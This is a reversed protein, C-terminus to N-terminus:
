TNRGPSAGAPGTGALVREAVYSSGSPYGRVLVNEGVQLASLAITQGNRRIDTAGTVTYTTSTGDSTTVSLTSSGVSAVTGAMRQGGPAGGGGRPGGFGGAPPQQGLGPQGQPAAVATQTGAPSPTRNAAQVLSVGVTGVVAGALVLGAGVAIARSAPKREASAIEDSPATPWQTTADLHHVLTPHVVTQQVLTEDDTM